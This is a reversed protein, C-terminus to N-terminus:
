IRILRLKRLIKVAWNKRYKELEEYCLTANMFHHSLQTIVMMVAENTDKAQPALSELTRLLEKKLPRNRLM